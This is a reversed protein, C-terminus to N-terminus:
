GISATLECRILMDMCLVYLGDFDEIHTRTTLRKAYRVSADLPLSGKLAPDVISRFVDTLRVLQGMNEPLDTPKVGITATVVVTDDGRATDIVEYSGDTIWNWIAPLEPAGTPRWEYVRPEDRENAEKAAEAVQQELSVIGAMMGAFSNKVPAM